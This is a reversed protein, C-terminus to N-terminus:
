FVKIKIDPNNAAFKAKRLTGQNDPMWLLFDGEGNIQGSWEQGEQVPAVVNGFLDAVTFSRLIKCIAVKM